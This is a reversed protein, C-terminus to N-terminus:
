WWVFLTYCVLADILLSKWEWGQDRGLLLRCIYGPVGRELLAFIVICWAGRMGKGGEGELGSGGERGRMRSRGM